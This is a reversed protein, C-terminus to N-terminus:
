LFNVSVHGCSDSKEAASSKVLSKVEDKEGVRCRSRGANM